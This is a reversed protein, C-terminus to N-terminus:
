NVGRRRKDHEPRAAKWAEVAARERVSSGCCPCEVPAPYDAHRVRYRTVSAPTIRLLAAEAARGLYRRTTV